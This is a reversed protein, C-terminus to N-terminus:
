KRPHFKAFIATLVRYIGVLILIGGFLVSAGTGIPRYGPAYTAWVIAIIAIGAVLTALGCGLPSEDQLDPSKAHDPDM